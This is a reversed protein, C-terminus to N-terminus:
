PSRPPVIQARWTTSDIGTSENDGPWGPPREQHCVLLQRSGDRAVIDAIPRSPPLAPWAAAAPSGLDQRALECLVVHGTQAPGRRFLAELDSAYGNSLATWVQEPEPWGLSHATRRVAEADPARFLCCLRRGDTRLFHGLPRIAYAAFCWHAAEDGQHVAPPTAPRPFSRAVVVLEM